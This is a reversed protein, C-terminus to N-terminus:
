RKTAPLMDSPMRLYCTSGAWVAKYLETNDQLEFRNDKSYDDIKVPDVKPKEKLRDRFHSLITKKDKLIKLDSTVAIYSVGVAQPKSLNILQVIRKDGNEGHQFCILFEDGVEIIPSDEPVPPPSRHYREEVSKATNGRLTEQIEFAVKYCATLDEVKTVSTARYVGSDICHDALWELSSVVIIEAQVPQSVAIIVAISFLLIKMIIGCLRRTTKSADDHGIASCPMVM